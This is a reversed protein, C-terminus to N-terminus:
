QREWGRSVLEAPSLVTGQPAHFREVRVAGGQDRTFVSGYEPAWQNLFEPHHSLILVQARHEQIADEVAALWPQLERLTIFNDPEDLLVTGGAAIVFRLIAYLCMLCRQGDSLEELLYRGPGTGPAIFEASWLRVNQGAADSRLYRFGDLAARLDDRFAENQEPNAQQLHRYWAAFNSLNVTPFLQEGDSKSTIVRPDIRFCLVNAFWRQFTTLKQNERRPIITALASRHWDFPYKVKQEFQDNYLRVEGDTFEFIPKADLTVSEEVVRPRLPEGWGDLVLKYTYTGHALTAEVECTQREQEMWRTRQLLIDADEFPRGVVAFQRLILWADMLSSKGTGNGGMILEKREPRYEFNVFCRFNDLYLRTLM